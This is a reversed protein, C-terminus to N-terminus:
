SHHSHLDVAPMVFSSFIPPFDKKKKDLIKLTFVTSNFKIINDFNIIELLNYYPTSYERSHIPWSALENNISAIM